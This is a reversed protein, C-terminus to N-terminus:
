SSVRSTARAWDLPAEPALFLRDLLLALELLVLEFERFTRDRLDPNRLRELLAELRAQAQSGREGKALGILLAHEEANFKFQRRTKLMKAASVSDGALLSLRVADLTNSQGIEGWNGTGYGKCWEAYDAAAGRFDPLALEHAQAQGLLGRLHARVRAMLARNRPYDGWQSTPYPQVDPPPVCPKEAAARECVAMGREFFCRATSRDGGWLVRLGTSLEQAASWEPRVNREWDKWLDWGLIAAYSAQEAEYKESWRPGFSDM